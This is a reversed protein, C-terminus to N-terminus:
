SASSIEQPKGTASSGKFRDDGARDLKVTRAVGAGYAPDCKAFLAVQRRKITDPVGQMAAAINDFL